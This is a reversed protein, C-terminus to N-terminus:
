RTNTAKPSRLPAAPQTPPANTPKSKFASRLLWHRKLGQVFNDTDVITKSIGSLLNTNVEVQNNLNSTLNALNNLSNELNQALAALNTQASTMTLDANGLMKDLRSNLNTPLLWEGLAGPQELNATAKALNSVAPRAGVAVVNLNSTLSASNSLVNALQNTLNLIDPLASEVQKLMAELRDGVAPSEDAKLFYKKNKVFADYWGEQDNWLATIHKQPKAGGDVVRLEKLGSQKIPALNNSLPTLAALLLNTGTHDYVDQGLVWKEWGSLNQLGEVSVVRLPIFIYTPHGGTGKTVELVRKGLLDATAIRAKSGTTWIYGYYPSKLAFEIYMNHQFQDAAMPEIQTIQGVDLGMLKVPDGEKLGSAGETYTYYLAKIKFWGKREATNYIYYGFGFLLLGAALLVFWGVEREMRSLRTRLQPTLDQLAM